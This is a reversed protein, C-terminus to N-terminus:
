GLPHELGRSGTREGTSSSNSRCRGMGIATGVRSLGDAAVSIRLRDDDEASMAIASGLSLHEAM